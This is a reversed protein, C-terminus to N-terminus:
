ETKKVKLKKGRKGLHKAQDDRKKETKEVVKRKKQIHKPKGGTKLVSVVKGGEEIQVSVVPAARKGIITVEDEFDSQDVEIPLPEEEKEKKSVVGPTAFKICTLRCNADYEGVLACKDSLNWVRINGDTSCSVLYTSGDVVYADIDKVRGNHGSSYKFVQEGNV